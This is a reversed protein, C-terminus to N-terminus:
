SEQAKTEQGEQLSLRIAEAIMKKTLEDDEDQLVQPPVGSAAANVGTGESEFQFSGGGGGMLEALIGRQTQMEM